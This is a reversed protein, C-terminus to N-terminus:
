TKKSYGIEIERFKKPCMKELFLANQKSAGELCFDNKVM